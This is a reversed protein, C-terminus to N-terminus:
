DDEEYVYNYEDDFTEDDLFGYCRVGIYLIGDEEATFV